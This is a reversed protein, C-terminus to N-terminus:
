KVPSTMEKGVCYEKILKKLEDLSNFVHIGRGRNLHVAKLIWLNHGVFHCFPMKAMKLNDKAECNKIKKKMKLHDSEKIM